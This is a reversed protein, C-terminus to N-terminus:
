HVKKGSLVAGGFPFTSPAQAADSFYLYNALMVTVTNFGTDNTAYKKIVENMDDTIRVSYKKITTREKVTLLQHLAFDDMRKSYSAKTLFKHIGKRIAESANDTQFHVCLRNVLESPLPINKTISYTEKKAMKIGEKRGEFFNQFHLCYPYGIDPLLEYVICILTSFVWRALFDAMNDEWLALEHKKRVSQSGGPTM